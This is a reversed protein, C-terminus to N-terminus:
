EPVAEPMDDLIGSAERLVASCPIMLEVLTGPQANKLRLEGGL